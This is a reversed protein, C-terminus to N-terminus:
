LQWFIIIPLYNQISQKTTLMLMLIQQREHSIAACTQSRWCKRLTFRSKIWRTLIPETLRKCRNASTMRRQTSISTTRSHLRTALTRVMRIHLSCNRLLTGWRSRGTSRETSTPQLRILAATKRPVSQLQHCPMTTTKTWSDQRMISLTAPERPLKLSTSNTRRFSLKHQACRWMIIRFAKLRERAVGPWRLFWVILRASKIVLATMCYTVAGM